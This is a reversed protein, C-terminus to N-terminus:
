KGFLGKLFDDIYDNSSEAPRNAEFAKRLERKFSVASLTIRSDGRALAPNAEVIREWYDEFTKSM